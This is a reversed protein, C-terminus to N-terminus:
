TATSGTKVSRVPGDGFGTLYSRYTSTSILYLTSFYLTTLKASAERRPRGHAAFRFVCLQGGLKALLM